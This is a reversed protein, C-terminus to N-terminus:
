GARRAAAYESPSARRPSPAHLARATAIARRPHGRSAGTAAVRPEGAPRARRDAVAGKGFPCSSDDVVLVDMEIGAQAATAFVEALWLDAAASRARCYESGHLAPAILLDAKTNM